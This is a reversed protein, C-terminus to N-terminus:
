KSDAAILFAAGFIPRCFSVDGSVSIRAMQEHGQGNEAWPRHVELAAELSRRHYAILYDAYSSRIHGGREDTFFPLPLPTVRRGNIGEGSAAEAAAGCLGSRIQSAADQM